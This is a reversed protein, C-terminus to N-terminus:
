PTLLAPNRNAISGSYHEPVRKNDMSIWTGAITSLCLQCHEFERVNSYQGTLNILVARQCYGVTTLLDRSRMPYVGATYNVQASLAKQDLTGPGRTPSGHWAGALDHSKRPPSPAASSGYAM